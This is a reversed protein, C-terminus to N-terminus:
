VQGEGLVLCLLLDLKGVPAMSECVVVIEEEFLELQCSVKCGLERGLVRLFLGSNLKKGESSSLSSVVTGWCCDTSVRAQLSSVENVRSSSRGVPSSNRVAQRWRERKDATWKRVGGEAGGIM